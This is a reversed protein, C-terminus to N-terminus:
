RLLRQYARTRTIYGAACYGSLQLARYKEHYTFVLACDRFPLEGFRDGFGQVRFGLGQVRIGLGEVRIRMLGAQKVRRPRVGPGAVILPVRM